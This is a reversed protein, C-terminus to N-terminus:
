RPRSLKTPSTGIRSNVSIPPTTASRRSRRCMISVDCTTCIVTANMRAASTKVSGIWIQIIRVSDNM